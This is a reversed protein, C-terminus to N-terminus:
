AFDHILQEKKNQNTDGWTHLKCSLVVLPAQRGSKHFNLQNIRKITLRPGNQPSNCGSAASKPVASANQRQSRGEARRSARSAGRGQGNMMSQQHPPAPLEPPNMWDAPPRNLESCTNAEASAGALKDDPLFVSPWQFCVQKTALLCLICVCVCVTSTPPSAPPPITPPGRRQKRSRCQLQLLSAGCIGAEANM